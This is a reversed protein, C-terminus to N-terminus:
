SAFGLCMLLEVAGVVLGILSTVRVGGSFSCVALVVASLSSMTFLLAVATRTGPPAPGFIGCADALVGGYMIGPFVLACLLSALGLRSGARQPDAVPLNTDEATPSVYPNESGTESDM